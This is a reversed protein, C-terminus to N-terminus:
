ENNRYRGHPFLATDDGVQVTQLGLHVRQLLQLGFGGGFESREQRGDEVFGKFPLQLQQGGNMAWHEIMIDADVIGTSFDCTSNSHNWGLRVGSLTRLRFNLLSASQSSLSRDMVVVSVPIIEFIGFRNIDRHGSPRHTRVKREAGNTM